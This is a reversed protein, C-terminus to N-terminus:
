ISYRMRYFNRNKKFIAIFIFDVFIVISISFFIERGKSFNMSFFGNTLDSSIRAVQDLCSRLFLVVPKATRAINPEKKRLRPQMPKELCTPSLERTRVYYRCRYYCCANYMYYVLLSPSHISSSSSLHLFFERLMTDYIIHSRENVQQSVLSIVDNCRSRSEM